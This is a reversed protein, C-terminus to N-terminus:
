ANLMEMHRQKHHFSCLWRVDLPKSYNEHHAQAKKGCKECPEKALKGSLVARRVMEKAAKKHKNRIRYKECIANMVGPNDRRYKAIRKAVLERNRAYYSQSNVRDCKKCYPYLGDPRSQSKSFAEKSRM